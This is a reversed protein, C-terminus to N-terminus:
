SAFKKTYEMAKKEFADKNNVFEKAIEPELPSVNSPTKLMSGIKELIEAVKQTPQWSSAFIDQCIEGTDLKINPHYITTEFKVDPPKFPYNDPFNFILKFKGGYYPSDEPGIMEVIWKKINTGDEISISSNCVPNKILQNLENKLRNQIAKAM